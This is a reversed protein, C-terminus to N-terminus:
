RRRTATAATRPSRLRGSRRAREGRIARGLAGLLRGNLVEVLADLQSWTLARAMTVLGRLPLESVTAEALRRLMRHDTGELTSAAQRTALRYLLGGLWTGRIEGLTSNRHFPWPPPEDPFPRGYLEAFAVDDPPAAPDPARYAGPVRDPEVVDTSAVDIRARQRIDRSSAGVRVEYVGPEVRFRGGSWVALERRSVLLVLDRSEGAALAVRAFAGLEQEPRYVASDPRHLYVQVVEVGDRSGTNTLTLRVEVGEDTDRVEIPGYAFTTYSLGHGFPFRVDLGASDFWRYGVYLGELYRVQRGHRPWARDALHAGVRDVFTEPLRGAPEAMGTLVDVIGEGVAQGGLYAEVVAAVREAWPAAVASGNCLVVVVKPCVEAVAEILARQNAPLDLTTRDFGESELHAPLGAVVVAVEARSAVAVAEARLAPDDVDGEPYGPAFPVDSRVAEFAQRVGVVQSPAVGSSGAGQYRPHEAMTGLLAVRADAPLPLVGDNVLLVSCAAAARRALAHRSAAADPEPALPPAEAFRAAAAALRGLSAVVQAETIAGSELGEQLVALQRAGTGPMELDLGAALAAARNSVAGWDSVVFGEFGWEGRLVGDILPHETAYHGNVLNYSAMVAAPESERVAIEFGRLYLERLTRDDVVVDLVMRNREQNNAVFHKLCAGVGAGQCGRVWAAALEGSLLPDESFYEFSRGGFPHRKLNLGPGLVVHVGQERAELGIAHGIEEVLEPDWSAALAAATPYCTAPVPDALGFEDAQRSKRLGHPGDSLWMPPVGEDPWGVTRWVDQGTLGSLRAEM